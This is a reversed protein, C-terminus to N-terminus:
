PHFANRANQVEALIERAESVGADVLAQLQRELEALRQLSQHLVDRRWASSGSLVFTQMLFDVLVQPVDARVRRNAVIDQMAEVIWRTFLPIMRRDSFKTLLSQTHKALWEAAATAAHPDGFRERLQRDLDLLAHAEQDDKFVVQALENLNDIVRAVEDHKVYKGLFRDMKGPVLMQTAQVFYLVVAEVLGDLLQANTWNRAALPAVLRAEDVDIGFQVRGGRTPFVRSTHFKGDVDWAATWGSFFRELTLPLRAKIVGWLTNIHEQTLDEDRTTTRPKPAKTPKGEPDQLETEPDDTPPAGALHPAPERLLQMVWALEDAPVSHHRAALEIRYDLETSAATEANIGLVVRLNRMTVINNEKDHHVEKTPDVRRPLEKLVQALDDSPPVPKLGTLFQILDEPSSTRFKQPTRLALNIALGGSFVRAIVSGDGSVIVTPTATPRGETVTAAGNVCTVTFSEYIPHRLALTEHLASSLAVGYHGAFFGLLGRLDSRLKERWRKDVGARSFMGSVEIVWEDFKAEDWRGSVYYAVSVAIQHTLADMTLATMLRKHSKAYVPALSRRAFSNITERLSM